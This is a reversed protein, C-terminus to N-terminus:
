ESFFSRTMKLETDKWKETDWLNVMISCTDVFLLINVYIYFCTEDILVSVDDEYRIHINSIKVQLNKIIQTILKETFTDQKEVQHKEVVAFIRKKVQIFFVSYLYEWIM